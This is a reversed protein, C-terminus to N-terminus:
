YKGYKDEVDDYNRIYVCKKIQRNIRLAVIEWLYLGGGMLYRATPIKVMFLIAGVAVIVMGIIIGFKGFGISFLWKGIVFGVMGFIALGLLQVKTFFKLWKDEDSLIDHPVRSEGFGAM